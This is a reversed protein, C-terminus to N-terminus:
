KKIICKLIKISDRVINFHSKSTKYVTQIDVLNVKIKSHTLYKLVNLEYEFGDGDINYLKSILEKPFCRLGNQTDPINQGHFIKFLKSSIENGKRRLTPAKKFDRTGLYVGKDSIFLRAIKEIDSITHQLDDDVTIVGDFDIGKLYNLGYKLAYGKGRNVGYSIVKVNKIKYFVRDDESGDNVILINNFNNAQLKEILEKLKDKPNYTPILIFIRDYM